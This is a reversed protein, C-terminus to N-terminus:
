LPKVDTIRKRKYTAQKQAIKGQARDTCSAGHELLLRCVDTHGQRSAIMYPTVNEDNADHTAGNELLFKCVDHHGYKAALFLPTERHDFEFRRRADKVYSLTSVQEQEEEILQKCAALDGLRAAICLPPWKYNLYPVGKIAPWLLECVAQHDGRAATEYPTEDLTNRTSVAGGDLLVKCMDVDGQMAAIHLVTAGGEGIHNPDAGHQMFVRAVNPSKAAVALKLLMQKETESSFKQGMEFLKQCMKATDNFLAATFFGNFEQGDEECNEVKGSEIFIKIMAEDNAILALCVPSKEEKNEIMPSFGKDLLMRVLDKDQRKVAVHLPTEGRSNAQDTAGNDLLFRCVDLHGYKAALFLPTEAYNFKNFPDEEVSNNHAPTPEQEVGAAVLKKCQSLDGLRAAICLAPWKPNLYDMGPGNSSLSTM